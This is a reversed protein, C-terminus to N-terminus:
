MDPFKVCSIHLLTLMQCIYSYTYMYTYMCMYINLTYICVNLDEFFVWFIFAASIFM